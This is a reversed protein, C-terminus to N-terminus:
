FNDTSSSSSHKSLFQVSYIESSIISSLYQISSYGIVHLQKPKTKSKPEPMRSPKKVQIDWQITKIEM